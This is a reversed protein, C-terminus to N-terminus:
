PLNNARAFDILALSVAHSAEPFPELANVIVPQLISVTRECLISTLEQARRVTRQTFPILTECDM